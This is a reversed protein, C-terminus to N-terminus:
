APPWGNRTALDRYWSKMGSDEAAYEGHASRWIVPPSQERLKNMADRASGPSLPDNAAPDKLRAYELLADQTFVGAGQLVRALMAQQIPTMACYTATYEAARATRYDAAAQDLRDHFEGPPGSFAASARQIARFFFEPQHAFEVFADHLRLNNFTWGPKELALLGAAHHVFEQDLLPLETIDSGLFPAANGTVLRLLKDRDSGSMILGFKRGDVNLTDRASKLAFMVAMASDRAIVHQAEDIILVIPMDVVRHLEHLADSLAAGAAKGVAGLEFEVGQICVKQLGIVAAARAVVGQRVALEKAVVHAVLEAPDAKQDKWLDVYIVCVGLERLAPVVDRNIFESKGTRRPAALFLSPQSFLSRGLVATALDMALKPRPFHLGM